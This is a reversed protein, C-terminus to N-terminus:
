RKRYKIFLYAFIIILLGYNIIIFWPNAWSIGNLTFSSIPWLFPTPFYDRTHTPIDIFIHLLWGGLVWPIKKSIIYILGFVILFIVLSHTINYAIFVYEPLTELPPKGPHFTGFILSYIIFVGFSLFDPLIAFLGALWRYSTRFYIAFTWLFHALTDM